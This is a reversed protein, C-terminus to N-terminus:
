NYNITSHWSQETSYDINNQNNINNIKNESQVAGQDVIM